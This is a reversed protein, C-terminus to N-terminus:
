KNITDWDDFDWGSDEDSVNWRIEGQLFNVFEEDAIFFIRYKNSQIGKTFVFRVSNKALFCLTDINAAISYKHKNM